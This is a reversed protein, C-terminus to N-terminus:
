RMLVALRALTIRTRRAASIAVRLQRVPADAAANVHLRAGAEVWDIERGSCSALRQWRASSASRAAVDIRTIGAEPVVGLVFSGIRAARL